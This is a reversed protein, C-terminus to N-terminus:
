KLTVITVGAGGEDHNGIRYNKVYNSKKLYELVGTRLAGTGKGHILYVKKMGILSSTDFFRDIEIRAEEVNLGRLDIEQSANMLSADKMLKKYSSKSKERKIDEDTKEIDSVHINFKLIGMQVTLEGKSDPLTLVTALDNM